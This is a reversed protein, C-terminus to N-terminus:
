EVIKKIRIIKLVGFIMWVHSVWGDAENTMRVAFSTVLDGMIIFIQRLLSFMLISVALNSRLQSQTQHLNRITEEFKCREKIYIPSEAMLFTGCEYNVKFKYKLTANNLFRAGRVKNAIWKLAHSTLSHSEDIATSSAILQPQNFRTLSGRVSVLGPTGNM